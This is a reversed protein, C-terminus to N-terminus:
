RFMLNHKSVKTFMPPCHRQHQDASVYAQRFAPMKVIVCFILCKLLCLALGPVNIRRLVNGFNLPLFSRRCLWLVVLVCLARDNNKLEHGLCVNAGGALVNAHSLVVGKPRGTTGSTYMLLADSAASVSDDAPPPYGDNSEGRLVTNKAVASGLEQWKVTPIGAADAASTELTVLSPASKREALFSETTFAKELENILKAQTIVLATQSHALVYGIVETGAVLNISVARYGGYQLGLAAIVASLGNHMAYAVSAGHAVGASDVEHAISRCLNRLQAYSCQGGSNPDVFFTANPQAEAHRDIVSRISDLPDVAPIL